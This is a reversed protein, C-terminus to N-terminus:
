HDTIATVDGGEVWHCWHQLSLLIFLLEREQASYRQQTENLKISFFAIPHLISRQKDIYHLHPQLLFKELADTELVIPLRWDFKKLIALQSFKKILSRLYGAAGIFGRIESTTSPMLRDRIAAVKKPDAAIGDESIVFGLFVGSTVFLYCKSTNLLLGYTVFRKLITVLRSHLEEVTDGWVAVDDLLGAVFSRYPSLVEEMFNQFTAPANCLGLPMVLWEFIGYPTVFATKERDNIHMRIHWFGNELDLFAYIKHGAARQIEDYTNTLPHAQKKTIKNLERYDVCVLWVTNKSQSNAKKPILVLPAAWPGQSKKSLKDIRRLSNNFLSPFEVAYIKGFKYRNETTTKHWFLKTNESATLTLHPLTSINPIPNLIPKDQMKLLKIQGDLKNIPKTISNKRLQTNKPNFTSSAHCNKSWNGKRGCTYCIDEASPFVANLPQSFKPNEESNFSPTELSPPNFLNETQNSENPLKDEIQWKAVQSAVQVVLEVIEHNDATIKQWETKLAFLQGSSGEIKSQLTVQPLFLNSPKKVVPQFEITPPTFEDKAKGKGKDKETELNPELVSIAAM